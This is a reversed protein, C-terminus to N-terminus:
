TKKDNVEYICMKASFEAIHWYIRGNQSSKSLAIVTYLGFM